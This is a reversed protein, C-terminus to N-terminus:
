NGTLPTVFDDRMRYAVSSGAEVLADLIKLVAAQIAPSSKLQIPKGYVFVQLVRGLHFITQSQSLLSGNGRELLTALTIFSKPLSHEGIFYLYMVYEDLVRHHNPLSLALADLRQQQGTLPEWHKLERSWPLGLFIANLLEGYGPYDSSLDALWSAKGVRDAFLQWLLWFNEGTRMEDEAAALDRVFNAVERYKEDVANLLPACLSAAKAPSITLSYHAFRSLIASLQEPPLREDDQGRRRPSKWSAVVALVAKQFLL